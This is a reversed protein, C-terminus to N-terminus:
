SEPESEDDDGEDDEAPPDAEVSPRQLWGALFAAAEDGPIGWKTADPPGDRLTIALQSAESPTTSMCVEVARVRRADEGKEWADAPNDHGARGALWCDSETTDEHYPCTANADDQSARGEDYPSAWPSTPDPDGLFGALWRAFDVAESENSPNFPNGPEPRKDDARFWEGAIKGREWTNSADTPPFLHRQKEASTMARRESVIEEGSDLRYVRIEETDHFARVEVDVSVDIGGERMQRALEDRIKENKDIRAKFEAATAKKDSEISEVLGIVDSLERGKLAYEHEGMKTMLVRPSRDLIVYPPSPAEETM